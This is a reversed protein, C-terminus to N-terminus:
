CLKTVSIAANGSNENKLVLIRHALVGSKIAQKKKSIWKHWAKGSHRAARDRGRHAIEAHSDRRGKGEKRRGKACAMLQSNSWVILKIFASYHYLPSHEGERTKSVFLFSETQFSSGRYM